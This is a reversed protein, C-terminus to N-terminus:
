AIKIAAMNEDQAVTKPPLTDCHWRVLGLSPWGALATLGAGSIKSIRSNQGPSITSKAVPAIYLGQPGVGYYTFM